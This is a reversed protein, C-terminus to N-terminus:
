NFLGGGVLLGINAAMLILVTLIVVYFASSIFAIKMYTRRQSMTKANSAKRLCCFIAGACPITLGCTLSLCVITMIFAALHLRQTNVAFGGRIEQESRPGSPVSHYQNEIVPAPVANNHLLPSLPSVPRYIDRDFGGYIPNPDTAFSAAHSRQYQM